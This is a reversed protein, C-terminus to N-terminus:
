RRTLELETIRKKLMRCLTDRNSLQSAINLAYKLVKQDMFKPLTERAQRVSLNAIENVQPASKVFPSQKSKKEDIDARKPKPAAKKLEVEESPPEEVVAATPQEGRYKIEWIDSDRLKVQRLWDVFSKGQEIDHKVGYQEYLDDLPIKEGPAISRKLAHRWMSSANKIYGEM